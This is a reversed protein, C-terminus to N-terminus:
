VTGTTARGLYTLPGPDRVPIVEFGVRDYFARAPTNATVMGLHVAPVGKGALADLFRAMLARGFGARQHGPLLDIHLHAPYPALEPVLMREPSHLLVAMIDAPTSPPGAPAPYREAVTPLWETRFREVFLGTDATGVIYGVPRGAGDDVVFALDPELAAYPGAFVSPLLGHDEYLHRADGGEEGTRICIDYMDQQDTARYPRVFPQSTM